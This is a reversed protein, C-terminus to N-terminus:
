FERTILVGNVQTCLGPFVKGGFNFDFSMVYPFYGEKTSSWYILEEDFNGIGMSHLNNYIVEMSDSSPIFWDDFGKYELDSVIKFTYDDSGFEIGDASNDNLNGQVILQTNEMGSGIENSTDLDFIDGWPKNGIESFDTAVMIKFEIEDVYFIYGGGFELGYLNEVGVEIIVSAVPVGNELNQVITLESNFITPDLIEENSCGSFILLFIFYNIINKM